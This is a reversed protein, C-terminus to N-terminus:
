SIYLLCTEFISLMQSLYGTKAHKLALGLPGLTFHDYIRSGLSNNNLTSAETPDDM